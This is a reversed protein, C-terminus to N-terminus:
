NNIIVNILFTNNDIHVASSLTVSIAVQNVERITLGNVKIEFCEKDASICTSIYAERRLENSTKTLGQVVKNVTEAAFEVNQLFNTHKMKITM